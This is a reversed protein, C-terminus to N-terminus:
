NNSEFVIVGNERLVAITIDFIDSMFKTSKMQLLLMNYAEIFFGFITGISIKDMKNIEASTIIANAILKSLAIIFEDNIKELMDKKKSVIETARKMMEYYDKPSMM